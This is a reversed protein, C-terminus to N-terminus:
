FTGCDLTEAVALGNTDQSLWSDNIKLSIAQTKNSDKDDVAIANGGSVGQLASNAHAVAATLETTASVSIKKNDNTDVVASVYTDGAAKVALEAIKQDAYAKAGYVSTVGSGDASTGSLATLATKLASDNITVTVNNDTTAVALTVYNEASAATGKTVTQVATEAANVADKLKQTSAVTVENTTASATVLAGNGTDGSASVNKAAVLGEAYKKVGYVTTDASTNQENGLVAVKATNAADTAFAKAGNITDAAKEDSSTGILEDKKADAYKKAGAITDSTSTDSNTGILVTKVDTAFAKAGYITDATKADGSTGIVQSKVTNTATTIAATIGSLAIAGHGDADERMYLFNASDSGATADLKVSVTQGSTGEGLVFGNKFEAESLFKSVDIDVVNTGGSATKYTFRLYEKKKVSDSVLEVSELASDKYIKIISSDGGVSEYDTGNLSFQLEYAEKVNEDSTTASALKYQRQERKAANLGADLAKIAANVTTASAVYVDTSASAYAVNAATLDIATASVKGNEESITTIVKGNGGVTEIDLANIIAQIEAYDYFYDKTTDSTGIALVTQPSNEDGYFAVAPEGTKLTVKSLAGKAAALSEYVSAGRYFQLHKTQAM